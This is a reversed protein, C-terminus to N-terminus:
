CGLSESTWKPQALTQGDVLRDLQTLKDRLPTFIYVDCLLNRITMHIEFAVANQQSGLVAQTANNGDAFVHLRVCVTMLQLLFKM